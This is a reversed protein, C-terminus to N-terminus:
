DCYSRNCHPCDTVLERGAKEVSIGTKRTNGNWAPQEIEEYIQRKCRWCIGNNPAFHPAANELVWKRQATIAEQVNFTQKVEENEM